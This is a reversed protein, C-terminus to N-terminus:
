ANAKKYLLTVQKVQNPYKWNSTSEYDIIWEPKNKIYDRVATEIEFFWDDVACLGEPKVYDFFGCDRSVDDYTHAGDIFLLDIGYRYDNWRTLVNFSFDPILTIVGEIKDQAQRKMFVDYSFEGHFSGHHADGFISGGDQYSPDITIIHGGKEKISHAMVLTSMGSGTGIEVILCRPKLVKAYFYLSALYDPRQWKDARLIERLEVFDEYENKRLFTDPWEDIM